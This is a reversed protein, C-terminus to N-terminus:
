FPIRFLGVWDPPKFGCGGGRSHASLAGDSWQGWNPDPLLRCARRGTLWSVQGAGANGMRPESMRALYTFRVPHETDRRAPGM